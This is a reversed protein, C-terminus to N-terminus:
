AREPRGLRNTLQVVAGSAINMEYIEYVNSKRFAAYIVSRGDPSLYPYVSNQYEDTTLRRFGTGDANVICIRNGAQVKFIQCTYIM